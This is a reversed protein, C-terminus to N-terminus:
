FQRFYRGQDAAMDRPEWYSTRSRDFRRPLSDRGVLRRCLGIPTLVLFFVMAMMLHGILWGIPFAAIMWGVYVPRALAPRLLGVAAVVGVLILVVLAPLVLALRFWLIVAVVLGFLPLIIGSFQRLQRTTPNTQLEILAM